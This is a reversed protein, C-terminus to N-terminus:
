AECGIPSCQKIRLAVAALAGEARHRGVAQRAQPELGRLSLHLLRRPSGETGSSVFDPARPARHPPVPIVSFSHMRRTSITSNTAAARPRPAQALLCGLGPGDLPASAAFAPASPAPALLALAPLPVLGSSSAAPGCPPSSILRITYKSKSLLSILPSPVSMTAACALYRAACPAVRTRRSPCVSSRPERSYLMPRPSRRACATRRAM